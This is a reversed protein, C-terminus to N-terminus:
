DDLLATVLRRLYESTVEPPEAAAIDTDLWTAPDEQQLLGDLSYISVAAASRARAAAHDALLPDPDPYSLAVPTIGASGVIGLAVAGRDGFLDRASSTYSAVVDPGHWEGTLDYILSQYVMFSAQDWALGLVPVDM